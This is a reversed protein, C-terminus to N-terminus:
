LYFNFRKTGQKQGLSSQPKAVSQFCKLSFFYSDIANYEM